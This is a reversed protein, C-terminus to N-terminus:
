DNNMKWKLHKGLRAGRLANEELKDLAAYSCNTLCFNGNRDLGRILAVSNIDDLLISANEPVSISETAERLEGM